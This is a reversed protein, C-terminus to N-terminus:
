PSDGTHPKEDEDEDEDELPVDRWEGHLGLVDGSYYDHTTVSWYQQLIRAGAGRLVFRLSATPAERRTTRPPNAM